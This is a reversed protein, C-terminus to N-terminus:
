GSDSLPSHDSLGYPDFNAPLEEINVVARITTFRVAILVVHVGVARYGTGPWESVGAATRAFPLDTRLEGPLLHACDPVPRFAQGRPLGAGPATECSQASRDPQVSEQIM